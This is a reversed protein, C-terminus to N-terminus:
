RYRDGAIANIVDTLSRYRRESLARLEHLTTADAGYHEARAVLEWRDVPFSLGDLVYRLRDSTDTKPPVAPTSAFM